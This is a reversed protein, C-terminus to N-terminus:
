PKAALEMRNSHIRNRAPSFRFCPGYNNQYSPSSHLPSCTAKLCTGNLQELALKKKKPILDNKRRQLSCNKEKHQACTMHVSNILIVWIEDNCRRSVVLITVAHSPFFQNRGDLLGDFCSYM